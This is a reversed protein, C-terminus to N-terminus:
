LSLKFKNEKLETLFWGTISLRKVDTDVTVPEVWHHSNTTVNFLVLSNFAPTIVKNPEKWVLNGGWDAHWNKTLYYNFTLARVYKPKGPDRYIYRDNHDSIFDGKNFITASARFSDCCRGSIDSFYQRTNKNNLYNNLATLAPPADPNDLYIHDRKFNFDKHYEASKNEDTEQKEWLESEILQQYLEEAFKHELANNIIVVPQQLLTHMKEKDSFIDLNLM